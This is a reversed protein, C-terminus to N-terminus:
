LLHEIDAISYCGDQQKFPAGSGAVPEDPSACVVLLPTRASGDLWPAPEHGPPLLVLTPVGVALLPDHESLEDVMVPWTQAGTPPLVDLLVSQLDAPAVILGIRGASILYALLQRLRRPRNLVEPGIIV